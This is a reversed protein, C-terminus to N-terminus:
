PLGPPPQDHPGGPGCGALEPLAEDVKDESLNFREALFKVLEERLDRPRFHAGPRVERLARHLEARTVDLEAALRCLPVFHPHAHRAGRGHPPLDMLAAEVDDAQLGLKEALDAAFASRVDGREQDHFDRLAEGLADSEVGLEKALDGPPPPGFGRQGAGNDRAAAASSGGDVQTGVGYAVSSLGVAGALVIATTKNISRM